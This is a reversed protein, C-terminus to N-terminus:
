WQLIMLGSDILRGAGNYVGCINNDYPDLLPIVDTNSVWYDVGWAVPNYEFVQIQPHAERNHTHFTMNGDGLGYFSVEERRFTNQVGSGIDSVDCMWDLNNQLSSYPQNRFSSYTGSGPTPDQRRIADTWHAFDEYADIGSPIVGSPAFVHSRIGSDIVGVAHELGWGDTLLYGGAFGPINSWDSYTPSADTHNTQGTFDRLNDLTDELNDIDDMDYGWPNDASKAGTGYVGTIIDELSDAWGGVGSNLNLGGVGTTQLADWSGVATGKAIRLVTKIYGLESVLDTGIGGYSDPYGPDGAHEGTDRVTKPDLDGTLTDIDIAGHTAGAPDITWNGIGHISLLAELQTKLSFNLAASLDHTADNYIDRRLFSINNTNITIMGDLSSSNSTGGFIRNGIAAKQATTLGSAAANIAITLSSETESIITRLRKIQEKLTYPRNRATNWFLGSEEGSTTDFDIFVQSGDLGETFANLDNSFDDVVQAATGTGDPLTAALPSLYTNWNTAISSLDRVIEKMSDRWSSATRPGNTSASRAVFSVALTPRTAM